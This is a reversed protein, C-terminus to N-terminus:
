QQSLQVLQYIESTSLMNFPESIQRSEVAPIGRSWASVTLLRCIDDTEVNHHTATSDLLKTGKYFPYLQKDMHSTRVKLTIIKTELTEILIHPTFCIIQTVCIERSFFIDRTKKRTFQVM